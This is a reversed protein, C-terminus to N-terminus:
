ADISASLCEDIVRWSEAAEVANTETLGAAVILAKWLTWARARTWTGIDLPLLARFTRRSDGGFLTWTISLDCAPDGVGLMGFDIVANLRGERVLLNGPSVDGHIWVPSRDWATELATDWVKTAAKSDIKGKLVAIAQRTEADYIKLPGGRFFNHPGPRPGDTPDIGQLAILFRALGTAFDNLDSIREAAATDGEIWRYISWKWPYGNGPEGIALPLPIRLPLLPALRPLWRHEKEVQSAYDGTRPVRVVIHEGLHFTGNDWGATEVSRVPLNAWQPFQSTVLRRVLEDDIVPPTM